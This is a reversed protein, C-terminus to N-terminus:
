QLDPGIFSRFAKRYSESVPLFRSGIQVKDKFVADIGELSVIYSHHIRIFHTAPLQQELTKLRQLSVIRQQRTHIAVYDKLGEVFLIDTQRIKVLRTGDKVFLFPAPEAPLPVAPSPVLGTPGPAAGPLLRAQAKHVARLFRELTIPKLLYDVVDLDYSELAYESYATTLIVLPQRPLIKLLALGTIEPMQVDLLLLDIPHSSLEQLAALPSACAAHLTLFPVKEVYDALLKRAMPEDDVILCRLM